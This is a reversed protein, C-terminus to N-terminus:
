LDGHIYSGDPCLRITNISLTIYPEQAFAHLSGYASEDHIVIYSQSWSAQFVPQKSPPSEKVRYSRETVSTYADYTRFTELNAQKFAVIAKSSMKDIGALAAKDSEFSATFLLGVMRKDPQPICKAEYALRTDRMKKLGNLDQDKLAPFAEKMSEIDGADFIQVEKANASSFSLLLLFFTFRIIM